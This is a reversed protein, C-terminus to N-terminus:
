AFGFCMVLEEVGYVCDAGCSECTYKRADPEVGDAECGCMICFGPDDLATTRREMAELIVEETIKPSVNIGDIKM